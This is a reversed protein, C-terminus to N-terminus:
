RISRLSSPTWLAPANPPEWGVAATHPQICKYIKSQYTVKDNVAYTTGVKWEPVISSVVNVTRTKPVAANGSNDTVNYTRTYTGVKSIDVTGTIVIKSSINGDINDTATAGPEVYTKNIEVTM